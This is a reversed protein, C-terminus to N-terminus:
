INRRSRFWSILVILLSIVTFLLSSLFAVTGKVVPFMWDASYEPALFILLMSFPVAWIAFRYWARYVEDRMKYTILSSLFLPIFPLFNIGIDTLVFPCNGTSWGKAIFDCIRYNGIYNWILLGISLLGSVALLSKKSCMNKM